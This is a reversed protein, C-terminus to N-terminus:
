RPSNPVSPNSFHARGEADLKVQIHCPIGPLTEAEKEDGENDKDKAKAAEKAAEKLREAEEAINVVEVRFEDMGCVRDTGIQGPCTHSFIDIRHIQQSNGSKYGHPM